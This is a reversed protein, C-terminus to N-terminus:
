NNSIVKVLTSVIPRTLMPENIYILPEYNITGIFELPKLKGTQLYSVHVAAFKLKM